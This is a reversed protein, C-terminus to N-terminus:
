FGLEKLYQAVQKNKSEDVENRKEREGDETLEQAAKQDREHALKLATERDLLNAEPVYTALLADEYEKTQWLYEIQAQVSDSM